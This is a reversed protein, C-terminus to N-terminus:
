SCGITWLRSSTRWGLFAEARKRLASVPASLHGPAHRGRLVEKPIRQPPHPALMQILLPFRYSQFYLANALNRKPYLPPLRAPPISTVLGISAGAMWLPEFNTRPPCSVLMQNTLSPSLLWGQLWGCWCKLRGDENDNQVIGVFEQQKTEFLVEVSKQGCCTCQGSVFRNACSSLVAKIALAELSKQFPLARDCALMGTEVTASTSNMFLFPIFPRRQLDLYKYSSSM